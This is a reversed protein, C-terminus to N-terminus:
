ASVIVEARNRMGTSAHPNRQADAPKMGANAFMAPYRRPARRAVGSGSAAAFEGSDVVRRPGATPGCKPVRVDFRDRVPRGRQFGRRRPLKAEGIAGLM